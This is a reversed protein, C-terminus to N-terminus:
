EPALPDSKGQCFATYLASMEQVLVGISWGDSIIHHQVILLIHQDSALKLLQGRILPGGALDFPTGVQAACHEALAADQQQQDLQALDAQGMAFGVDAPAIIQVPEGAAGGFCTRLAEHRAVIRDMTAQLAALNLQGTLRLGASMHYAAGAATDLQDLFWLRQQAWSLPLATAREAALIPSLAAGARLPAATRKLQLMMLERKMAELKSTNGSM